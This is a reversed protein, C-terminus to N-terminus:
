ITQQRNDLHIHDHQPFTKANGLGEAGLHVAAAGQLRLHAGQHLVQSEGTGEDVVEGGVVPEQTLDVAAGVHAPFPKVELPPVQVHSNLLGTSPCM